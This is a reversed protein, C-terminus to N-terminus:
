KYNIQLIQSFGNEIRLISLSANEVFFKFYSEKQRLILALFARIVGEHTVAVVDRDLQTWDDLLSKVRDMLEKISEGQPPGFDFPNELWNKIEEPYSEQGQSFTLGELVGYSIELLRDEIKGPRAFIGEATQIARKAPSVYLDGQPPNQELFKLSEQGLDTLPTDISAYVGQANAQSQGHRILYIKM